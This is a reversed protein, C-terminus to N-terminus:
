DPGFELAAFVLEGSRRSPRSRRRALCWRGSPFTERAGCHSIASRRRHGLDHRLASTRSSPTRKWAKPRQWPGFSPTSLEPACRLMTRSRCAIAVPLAPRFRFESSSIAGSLPVPKWGTLKYDAGRSFVQRTARREVSRSSAPGVITRQGDIESNPSFFSTPVKRTSGHTALSGVSCGFWLRM